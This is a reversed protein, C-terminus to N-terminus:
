QNLYNIFQIKETETIHKSSVVKERLITKYTEVKELDDLLRYYEILEVYFDLYGPFYELGLHIFDLATNYDKKEYSFYSALSFIHTINPNLKFGIKNGVNTLDSKFLSIPNEINKQKLKKHFWTDLIANYNSYANILIPPISVWYNSMHNTNLHEEFHVHLTTPLTKKSILSELSEYQKLYTSEEMTTGATYYYNSTKPFNSPNLLFSAFSNISLPKNNFFGSLAIAINIEKSKKFALYNVLFATRSHGIISIFDNAKYENQLKPILESFLFMEMREIGSLSDNEKKQTSTFYFRNKINFPVGIIITEPIQTESTLLDFSNIIQPYTREHQSDFIITIPYKTADSSFNFTEPLHLNLRISENLKSSNFTLSDNSYLSYKQGIISQSVFLLTFILSTLFRM